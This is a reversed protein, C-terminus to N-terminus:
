FGPPPGPINVTDPERDLFISVGGEGYMQLRMNALENSLSDVFVQQLQLLEDPDVSALDIRCITSRCDLTQLQIAMGSSLTKVLKDEIEISWSDDRIESDHQVAPSSEEDRVIANYDETAQSNNDLFAETNENQEEETIFKSVSLTTDPNSDTVKEPITKEALKPEHIDHNDVSNQQQDQHPALVWYSAALGLIFFIYLPKNM